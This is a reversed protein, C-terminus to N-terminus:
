RDRRERLAQDAIDALRQLSIGRVMLALFTTTDVNRACDRLRRLHGTYRIPILGGLLILGFEAVLVTAWGQVLLLVAFSAVHAALYLAALPLMSDPVLASQIPTVLRPDYHSGHTQILYVRAINRSTNQVGDAFHHLFVYAVYPLWACLVFQQPWATRHSASVSYAILLLLTLVYTLAGALM